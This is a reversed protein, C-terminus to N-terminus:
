KERAGNMVRLSCLNRHPTNEAQMPGTDQVDEQDGPDFGDQVIETTMLTLAEEDHPHHGRKSLINALDGADLPGLIKSLLARLLSLQDKKEPLCGMDTCVQKLMQDSLNWFCRKAANVEPSVAESEVSFGIGVDMHTKTKKTLAM